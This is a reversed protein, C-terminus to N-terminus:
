RYKNKLGSEEAFRTLVDFPSSLNERSNTIAISTDDAFQSIKYKGGSKNAIGEINQNQKIWLSLLEAALIFLYPSLPCGQRM